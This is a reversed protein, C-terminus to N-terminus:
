KNMNKSNQYMDGLYNVLIKLYREDYGGLLSNHWYIYLCDNFKNTGKFDSIYVAKHINGDKIVKDDNKVVCFTEFEPKGGENGVMFLVPMDKNWKLNALDIGYFKGQYMEGEAAKMFTSTNQSDIFRRKSILVPLEVSVVNNRNTKVM